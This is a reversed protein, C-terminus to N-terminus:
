FDKIGIDYLISTLWALTCHFFVTGACRCNRVSPRIKGMGWENPAAWFWSVSMGLPCPHQSESATFIKSNSRVERKLEMPYFSLDTRIRFNECCRFGVEPHRGMYESHVANKRLDMLTLSITTNTRREWEWPKACFRLANRIRLIAGKTCSPVVAASYTTRRSHGFKELTDGVIGLWIRM